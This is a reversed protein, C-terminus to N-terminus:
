KKTKTIKKIVIDPEEKDNDKKKSPKPEADEEKKKRSIKIPKAEIPEEPEEHEESKLELGKKSAKSKKILLPKEDDVNKNTKVHKKIRKPANSSSDKKYIFWRNMFSYEKESENMALANHVWHGKSADLEKKNEEYYKQLALYREKFTGTSSSTGLRLENCEDETLERIGYKALEARLRDFDVLYESYMSQETNISEFYVKICAGLEGNFDGDYAKQIAWIAKEDKYGYVPKGAAVTKKNKKFLEDVLWGDFCTGMFYGGEKLNNGVNAILGKLSEADKFYYHLAFQCSVVDFKDSAMNHFSREYDTQPQAYGWLVGAHHAVTADIEKLPGQIYEQTIEKSTDMFLFVYDYSAYRKKNTEFHRTMRTIAGNDSIINQRNVDLGLVRKIGADTWKFLDGAEGCAVDFLSKAKGAFKSILSFQKIWRNHFQRVPLTLSSKRKEADRDDRYYPMDDLSVVVPASGSINAVTIPDVITSWISRAVEYDNATGSIQKKNNMYLETKDHRIRTPIWRKDNTDFRMEVISADLIEEESECLMQGKENLHMTVRSIDVNEGFPHVATFLREVYMPTYRKKPDQMSANVVNKGCYIELTKTPVEVGDKNTTLEILTNGNADKVTKVLFDITNDHPPKWKFVHKWTGSSPFQQKDDETKGAVPLKQPTFILGDTTFNIHKAEVKDLLQKAMILINQGQKNQKPVLFEKVDIIFQEEVDDYASKFMRHDPNVFKKAMGLRTDKKDDTNSWFPADWVAKAGYFYTDFIMIAQNPGKQVTITTLEADFLSSKCLAKGSAKIGTDKVHLRNNILYLRRDENVFLLHREGDAKLTVTYDNFISPYDNASSLETKLFHVRELSVPQPGAFFKKSSKRAQEVPPAEKGYVLALYQKIVENSETKSMLFPVDEVVKLIETLYSLMSMALKTMKSSKTDWAKPLCELEIEYSVSAKNYVRAFSNSQYDGTRVITLDYRFLKDPTIFSTRKKLRMFKNDHTLMMRVTKALVDPDTIDTEESSKIVLGYEKLEVRGPKREKSMVRVHTGIDESKVDDNECFYQIRDLGQITMRHSGVVVDLMLPQEEDEVFEPISKVYQLVRQFAYYDLTKKDTNGEIKGEVEYKNDAGQQLLAIINDLETRSIRLGM